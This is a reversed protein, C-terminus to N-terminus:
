PRHSQVEVGARMRLGRCVKVTVWFAVMSPWNHVCAAVRDQLTPSEPQAATDPQM